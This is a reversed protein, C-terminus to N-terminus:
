SELDIISCLKKKGGAEGGSSTAAVRRRAAHWEDLHYVCSFNEPEWGSLSHEVVEEMGSKTAM